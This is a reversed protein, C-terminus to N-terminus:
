ARNSLRKDRHRELCAGGMNINATELWKEQPQLWHCECNLLWARALATLAAGCAANGLTWSTGPM